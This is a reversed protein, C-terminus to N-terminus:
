SPSCMYVWPQKMEIYSLIWQFIFFLFIFFLPGHGETGLLRCGALLDLPPWVAAGRPAESTALCLGSLTLSPRCKDEADEEREEEAHM